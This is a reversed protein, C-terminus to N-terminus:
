DNLLNIETNTVSPELGTWIKFSAQAQYIFMMKGNSIMNQNNEADLLFKTKEPSYIVDYFLKNKVDSFDLDLSDNENLGVSTTNLYIDAQKIEGWNIVNINDFLNKLNDAKERTRNTIYFNSIGLNKLAQIASPSVGGAGIIFVTKKTFSFDILQLSKEIGYVDTNDGVIQNNQISLTNVSQTKQATESVQDVYKLIENKFPVTVNAGNIEGDRLQQVFEKLNEKLLLKKEYACDLNNKSIWHNHLIPSKSHAIPNGIVCLKKM